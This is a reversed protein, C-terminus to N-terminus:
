KVGTKLQEEADRRKLENYINYIGLSPNGGMIFQFDNEKGDHMDGLQKLLADTNQKNLDYIKEITLLDNPRTLYQNVLKNQVEPSLSKFDKNYSNFKQKTRKISTKIQAERLKISDADSREKDMSFTGSSLNFTNNRIEKENPEYKYLPSSMLQNELNIDDYRKVQNQTYRKFENMEKEVNNSNSTAFGFPTAAAFRNTDFNQRDIQAQRQKSTFDVKQKWNAWDFFSPTRGDSSEFMYTKGLITNGDKYKIIYEGTIDTEDDRVITLDEYSNADGLLDFAMQKLYPEYMVDYDALIKDEPLVTNNSIMIDGIVTYNKIISNSVLDWKEDASADPNTISFQNYLKGAVKNMENKNNFELDGWGLFSNVDTLNNVTDTLDTEWKKKDYDAEAQNDEVFSNGIRDTKSLISIIKDQPLEPNTNMISQYMESINRSKQTMSGRLMNAVHRDTISALLNQNNVFDQFNQPTPKINMRTKLITPVKNAVKMANLQMQVVPSGANSTMSEIFADINVEGTNADTYVDSIMTDLSRQIEEPSSNVLLDQMAVKQQTPNGNNVIQSFKTDVQRQREQGIWQKTYSTAKTNTIYGGNFAEDVEQITLIGKDLKSDLNVEMSAKEAYSREPMEVKAQNNLIRENTNVLQRVSADTYLWGSRGDPRDAEIFEKIEMPIPQGKTNYENIQAYLSNKANQVSVQGSDILNNMYQNFGQEQIQPSRPNDWAVKASAQESNNRMTVAREVSKAAGQREIVDKSAEFQKMLNNVYVKNNPNQLVLKDFENRLAKVQTQTDWGNEIAATANDNSAVIADQNANNIDWMRQQEPSALEERSKALLVANEDVMRRESKASALEQSFINQSFQNGMANYKKALLAKQEPTGAAEVEKMYEADFISKADSLTGGQQASQIQADRSIENITDTAFTEDRYGVGKTTKLDLNELDANEAKAMEVKSLDTQQDKILQDEKELLLRNQNTQNIQQAAGLANIIANLQGVSGSDVPKPTIKASTLNLRNLAM